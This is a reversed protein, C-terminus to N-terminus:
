HFLGLAVDVDNGNKDPVHIELVTAGFDMVKVKMGGKGAIEYTFIDNGKGDTGWLTKNM